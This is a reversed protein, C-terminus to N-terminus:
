KNRWNEIKEVIPAFNDDSALEVLGRDCASTFSSDVPVKALVELHHKLAIEDIHSKGFLYYPEKCKPCVVYSMNEVIGVIPINMIEAMRVSKSVIMSVLEQPSTVIIIGDIPISQFVTLPVDGTGPPMDIFMYDVEDWVVDTWFQQVTKAILPGRWVVPDTENELLLNISMIKIKTKSLVPIIGFDSQMAKEKLGFMKPISPGTLDADLIATKYGLRQMTVALVSTIMSKGVGGKGSIVAITKKVSSMANLHIRFDTLEDDCKEDCSGCDQNCEQQKQEGSSENSYDTTKCNEKNMKL